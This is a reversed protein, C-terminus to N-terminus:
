ASGYRYSIFCEDTESFFFGKSELTAKDELSVADADVGGCIYLTDHECHTPYKQTAYKAFIKLAEILEEFTAREPKDCM